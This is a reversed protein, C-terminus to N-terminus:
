NSQLFSKLMLTKKSRIMRVISMWCLGSFVMGKSAGDVFAGAAVYQIDMESNITVEDYM